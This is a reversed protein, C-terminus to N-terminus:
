AFATTSHREVDCRQGPLDVPTAPTPLHRALEGQAELLLVADPM